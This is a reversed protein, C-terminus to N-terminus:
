GRIVVEFEDKTPSAMFALMLRGQEQLKKLDDILMSVLNNSMNGIEDFLVILMRDDDSSILGRLYSLQGEGTGMAGIHITVGGEVEIDGKGEKLLDVSQVAYVTGCDRITGLKYGIYEWLSSYLERHKKYESDDHNEIKVFRQENEKLISRIKNCSDVIKPLWRKSEFYKPRNEPDSRKIKGDLVEISNNTNELLTENDDYKKSYNNITIQFDDETTSTPIILEKCIDDIQKQCQVSLLGRKQMDDIISNLEDNKTQISNKYIKILNNNRGEIDPAIEADGIKSALDSIYPGNKEIKKLASRIDKYDFEENINEKWEQLKEIVERISGLNGLVMDPDKEKELDTILREILRYQRQTDSRNTPLSKLMQSISELYVDVSGYDSELDISDLTRLNNILSENKSSIILSHLFPDIRIRYLEETYRDIADEVQEEGSIDTEPKEMEKNLKKRYGEIEDITRQYKILLLANEALTRNKKIEDSKKELAKKNNKQTDLEEKWEKIEEDSPFKDTEKRIEQVFNLFNYVKQSTERNENKITDRIQELRKTPNEPVDYVLRYKKEFLEQSLTTTKGDKVETVTIDKKKSKKSMKLVTSTVKDSLEIDFELDRYSASSLENLDAIVSRSLSKNFEGYSGLAIMNMVTSKGTSSPGQVLLINGDVEKLEDRPYHIDTKSGKQTKLQYDVKMM